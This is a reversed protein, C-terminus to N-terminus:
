TFKIANGILNILIQNVRTPDGTLRDPINKDMDIHFLLNKEEAKVIMIERLGSLLEGLSFDIHEIIIKGAEIKSLDLIDNIIVLLNDSAKRIANLYRVQDPKPNKDILLRTMGVIANMPTRIEHSMNAMFQQKLQATREAVEKEKKAVEIQSKIQLNRLKNLTKQQFIEEKLKEFLKLHSFANPIDGMIDYLESLTEHIIMLDHKRSVSEALEYATELHKLAIRYNTQSIQLKGFYYSAAIEAEINESI